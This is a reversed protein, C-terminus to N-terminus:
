LLLLQVPGLQIGLSQIGDHSRQCDTVGIDAQASLQPLHRELISNFGPGHRWAFVHLFGDLIHLVTM